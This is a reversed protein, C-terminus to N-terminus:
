SELHSSFIGKFCPCSQHRERTPWTRPKKREWKVGFKVLTPVCEKPLHKFSVILQVLDFPFLFSWSASRRELSPAAMLGAPSRRNLGHARAWCGPARPGVPKGLVTPVSNLTGSARSSFGAPLLAPHEATSLIGDPGSGRLRPQM